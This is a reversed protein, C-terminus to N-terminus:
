LTALIGKKALREASERDLSMKAGTGPCDGRHGSAVVESKAADAATAASERSVVDAAIMVTVVDVVAMAVTTVVATGSTETTGIMGAIVAEVDAAIMVTVVTAAVDVAIGSTMAISVSTAGRAVLRLM